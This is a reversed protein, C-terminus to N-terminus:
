ELQPTVLRYIRNTNGLSDTVQVARSEPSAPVDLLKAWVLDEIAQKYQVTYTMNSPANFEILIEGNLTIRDVKLYSDPDQPNTGSRFEELNTLGDSDADMGADAASNADLSNATEWADPMGDGDTDTLVTLLINPSLLGPAFFAANTLVVSYRTNGGDAPQVNDLRMFSVRSDLVENKITSSGKRWRYGMPLTGDAEISLTVSGGQVVDYRNSIRTIFPNVLVTLRGSRSVISGAADTVVVDYNGDHPRDVSAIMYSAGTAGPIPIGNFRWQYTIPTSSLANVVFLASEGVRHSVNQPHTVINAPIAVTVHASSSVVSGAGNYVIVQYPGEDEPLAQVLTYSAGIAGEIVNGKFLWQYSLPLASSAGVTLTGSSLAVVLGDAPQSTIVPVTGGTRAAGPTAAAAMWNIPDNGYAADDLRQLSPGNGDAVDPWPLEDRYAVRDVLIYPVEDLEPNDPRYLDIRENSNDLKGAYPGFVRVSSAV